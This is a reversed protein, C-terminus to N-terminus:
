RGGRGAYMRLAQRMRKQYGPGGQKFFDLLPQEIRITVAVKRAEMMEAFPVAREWFDDPMPPEDDGPRTAKKAAELNTLSQTTSRTTKSKRTM